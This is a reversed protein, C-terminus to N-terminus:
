RPPIERHGARERGGGRRESGKEREREGERGREREGRERAGESHATFTGAAEDAGAKSGVFVMGSAAHFALGIPSPM